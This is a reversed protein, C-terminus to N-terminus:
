TKLRTLFRNINTKTAMKTKPNVPQAETPVSDYPPGLSELWHFRKPYQDQERDREDSQVTASRSVGGGLAIRNRAFRFTSFLLSHSRTASRARSTNAPLIEGDM